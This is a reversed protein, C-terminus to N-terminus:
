KSLNKFGKGVWEDCNKLFVFASINEPLMSARLHDDLLRWVGECRDSSSPSLCYKGYLYHIFYHHNGHHMKSFELFSNTDM